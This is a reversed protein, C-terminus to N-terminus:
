PMPRTVPAPPAPPQVDRGDATAEGMLGTPPRGVGAVPRVPRPGGTLVLGLGLLVAASVGLTVRSQFLPTGPPTPRAAAPVTVSAGRYAPWPAPLQDQFFATLARDADTTTANSNRENM